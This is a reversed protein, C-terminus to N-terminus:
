HTVLWPPPSSVYLFHSLTWGELEKIHTSITPNSTDVTTDLNMLGGNVMGDYSWVSGNQLLTQSTFHNSGYYVLAGLRYHISQGELTHLVFGTTPLMKPFGFTNFYVLRPVTSVKLSYTFGSSSGCHQCPM